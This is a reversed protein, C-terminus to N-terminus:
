IEHQMSCVKPLMQSDLEVGNMKTRRGEGKEVEKELIQLIDELLGEFWPVWFSQSYKWTLSLAISGILVEDNTSMTAANNTPHEEEICGLFVM